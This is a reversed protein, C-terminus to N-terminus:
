NKYYRRKFCMMPIKLSSNNPWSTCYILTMARCTFGFCVRERLKKLRRFQGTFGAAEPIDDEIDSDPILVQAPRSAARTKREPVLVEEQTEIVDPDDFFGPPVVFDDDSEIGDVMRSTSAVKSAEEDDSDFCHIDDTRNVSRITKSVATTSQKRTLTHRTTVPAQYKNSASITTTASTLKGKGKETLGVSIMFKKRGDIYDEACEGLKLSCHSTEILLVHHHCVVIYSNNYGMKNQYLEEKLADAAVLHQFIREVLERSYQLGKGFMPLSDWGKDRLTKSKSGRFADVAQNMTPRSAAASRVLELAMCAVDTM